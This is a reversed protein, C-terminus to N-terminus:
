PNLRKVDRPFLIAEKISGLNLLKFVLRESGMGWGGHPPMAYKFALLYDAFAETAVNFHKMSNLLEDYKHIRQSGTTIEIGKFLLDFSKTEEINEGDPMTYFPRQSRPYHTLFIFDSGFKEKAYQGAYIEGQPDIDTDKPVEYGYREKIIKKVDALKVAPIIEPIQPLEAQYLALDAKNKEGIMKFIHKIVKTLERMIDEHSEIFGMEADFSIYENVHRTTFSREARFAPGVEFVREFAGVCIQKYLQPSQALFAKKDFYDLTFFNAGGESAAGLIKPTKIERFGEIRMIEGYAALVTDYINFIARVTEHRITLPRFDLLTNLEVKLTKKSLDFPLEEAPAELVEVSEGIVEVGM